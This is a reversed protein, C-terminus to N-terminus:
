ASETNESNSGDSSPESPSPTNNSEGTQSSRDADQETDDQLVARRMSKEFDCFGLFGFVPGTVGCLLVVNGAIPSQVFVLEWLGAIFLLVTVVFLNLCTARTYWFYLALEERSSESLEQFWSRAPSKPDPRCKSKIKRSVRQVGHTFLGCVYVTALGVGLSIVWDSADLATALAAPLIKLYWFGSLLLVGPVFFALDFVRFLTPSKNM